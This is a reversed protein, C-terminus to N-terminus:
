LICNIYSRVRVIQKDEDPLVYDNVVENTVHKRKTAKSMEKNIEFLYEAIIGIVKLSCAFTDFNKALHTSIM